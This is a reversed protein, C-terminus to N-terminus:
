SKSVVPSKIAAKVAGDPPRWLCTAENELFVFQGEESPQEQLTIVKALVM